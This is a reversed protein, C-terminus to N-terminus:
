AEETWVLGLAKALCQGLRTTEAYTWGSAVGVRALLVRALGQRRLARDVSVMLVHRREPVLAVFGCADGSETIALIEVRVGPLALQEQVRQHLRANLAKWGAPNFSAGPLELDELKAHRLAAVWARALWSREHRLPKAALPGTGDLNVAM